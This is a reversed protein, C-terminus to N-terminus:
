AAKANKLMLNKILEKVVLPMYDKSIATNSKDDDLMTIPYFEGNILARLGHKESLLVTVKTKARFKNQQIFFTKGNLSITSGSSLVRQYEACLLRDLDCTHPVPVYASFSERAEVSFQKNFMQIYEKLFENAEGATTINRMAFEVPLRSQLTDWLREIRGKAEPSHAPFMDIGLRDVIRGFQTVRKTVGHLQEEISFDKEKHPNVFFVSYRDPYLSLPIGFSTLTQRLVELYGLLCENKCIYLGTIKGTADDIFGHLTYNINNGFWPFPTADAQLMLGEAAKRERTPHQKKKKRRKKPSKINNETLLRYLTSYSLDINYFNSLIERFHTFNSNSLEPNARIKLVSECLSKDKKKPSTRNSNGHIVAVAGNEKFEKKLQKIRRPTLNLREAAQKVTLEGDVASKIVHHKLLEHNSMKLKMRESYCIQIEPPTFNESFLEHPSIIM